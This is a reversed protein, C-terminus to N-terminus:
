ITRATIWAHKEVRRVREFEDQEPLEVTTTYLFRSQASRNATVESIGELGGGTACIHDLAGELALRAVSKAAIGSTM